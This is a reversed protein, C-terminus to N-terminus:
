SNLPTQKRQWPIFALCILHLFLASIYIVAVKDCQWHFWIDPIWVSKRRILDKKTKGIMNGMKGLSIQGRLEDMRRIEESLEM